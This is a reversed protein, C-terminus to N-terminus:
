MSTNHTRTVFAESSVEDDVSIPQLFDVSDPPLVHSAKYTRSDRVYREGTM